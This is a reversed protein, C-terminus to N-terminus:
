SSRSTLIGHWLGIKPLVSQFGCVHSVRMFNDLDKKTLAWPILQMIIMKYLSEQTNNHDVDRSKKYFYSKYLDTDRDLDIPRKHCPTIIYGRTEDPWVLSMIREATRLPLNMWSSMTDIDYIGRPPDFPIDFSPAPLCICAPRDHATDHAGPLRRNPIKIVVLLTRFKM